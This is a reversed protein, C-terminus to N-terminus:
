VAVLKTQGPAVSLSGGPSGAATAVLSGLLVPAGGVKLKTAKGATITVTTCPVNGAPPPVHNCAAVPGLGTLVAAPITGVTLKPAPVNAAAGPAHPCKVTDTAILVAPM